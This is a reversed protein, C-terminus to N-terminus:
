QPIYSGNVDGGCLGMFNITADAGNVIVTPDEFVYNPILWNGPNLFAIKQRMLLVDNTNVSNSLNVDAAKNQLPTFTTLFAIKQKTMVVDTTNMGGWIKNDASAKITYTGNSVCHFEYHGNSDTQTIAVNNGANDKIILICNSLPTNATNNYTVNGSISYNPDLGAISFCWTDSWPYNITDQIARVHWYYLRGPQHMEISPFDNATVQEDILTSSFDPFLSVQIRYGTANLTPYWSYSPLTSICQVNQAPKYMQVLWDPTYEWFDSLTNGNYGVCIYGKNGISFGSAVRREVGGFNAKQTWQNGSPDYEWFDNLYDYNDSRGTGIYGKTGISFGIAARRVGGAFNEKQIWQNTSPDYEWFDNLFNNGNYGTGIYGKNGISFGASYCRADGGFDTKQTWSDTEPDYEWFDKLVNGLSDIGTGIYGKNGISFGVAQGIAGGRFNAKKTWQNTTPDYEWFDSYNTSDFGLGIYGKNGISFGTGCCRAAGGFNAKQTWKNTAPDYEWFDNFVNGFSDIGTGIYGKNGISFSVASCRSTGGFIAKQVWSNTPQSLTTFNWGDSWLSTQLGNSSNVRWYYTTAFNMPEPTYSNTTTNISVANAFASNDAIQITYGISGEVSTWTLNPILSQDISGNAPTLLTTAPLQSMSTFKWKKSYWSKGGNNDFAKIRWYYFLTSDLQQEATLTYTTNAISEITKDVTRFFKDTSIQLTYNVANIVPDWTFTPKNRVNFSHNVPSLQQPRALEPLTYPISMGLASANGTKIDGILTALGTEPDIIWWKRQQILPLSVNRIYAFLLDNEKDFEMDNANNAYFGSTGIFTVAATTKDIRYFSDYWISFGYLAGDADCALSLMYNVGTNGILTAVGTTLDLTYLKTIYNEAPDPSIMYMTNTTIDFSLGSGNFIGTSGIATTAGTVTDISWLSCPTTETYDIVYWIGNAWAGGTPYNTLFSDPIPTVVNPTWVNFSFPGRPLGPQDILNYAYATQAKLSQNILFFMALSFVFLSFKTILKM